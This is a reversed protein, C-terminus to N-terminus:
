TSSNRNEITHQVMEAEKINLSFFSMLDTMTQALVSLSNSLETVKESATVNKRANADQQQVALNMQEMSLNQEQTASSIEQILESTKQISPVLAELLSRAQKSIEVSSHSIQIIEGSAAQSREALKRVESAVVAFGKGQEGARAAEIAANLALMNTQRSIDEVISIKEAIKMMADVTKDVADGSMEANKAVEKALLETEKANDTNNRINQAVSEMSQNIQSSSHAQDEAGQALTRGADDLQSSVESIKGSAAQVQSVIHSLRQNMSVFGNQLQGIEDKRSTENEFDLAGEALNELIGVLFSVPNSITLAILYSIIIGGIISIVIIVIILIRIRDLGAEFDQLSASSAIIWKWQPFYSYGAFKLHERNEGPNKWPYYTIETEGDQLATGKEVIERIFYNGQSDQVDLINEGDRIRDKSLVYEGKDNLIYVYGTKGIVIESLDNLLVNQFQHENVGVYLIGIIDGRGDKIPEYATMYWANVVWARGFYSQGSMIRDYVAKSVITNVARQGDLKLVNTSIRYFAQDETWDSTTADNNKVGEFDKLQFITATGGILSKIKDVIIHNDNVIYSSEKAGVYLVGIVRGRSDFIPEYATKYWGNVVYARGYFTEGRMVTKYVVSSTPIYTGVARTNDLKMVNTSIRLLGQPITQFITATEVGTSNKIGDVLDYNFALQKGALEMLPITIESAEKTMQDVASVRISRDSNIRPQANEYLINHAVIIDSNVKKQVLEEREQDLLIMEGSDNIGPTGYDYFVDRAVVLDCIVKEEIINYINKVSSNIILSQQQLKQENDISIEQRVKTFVVIGMLTLPVIVLAINILVLRGKIKIGSFLSMNLAGAFSIKYFIV